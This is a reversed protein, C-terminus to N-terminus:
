ILTWLSGSTLWNLFNTPGAAFKLFYDWLGGQLCKEKLIEMAKLLWRSKQSSNSLFLAVAFLLTMTLENTIMTANTYKNYLANFDNVHIYKGRGAGIVYTNM